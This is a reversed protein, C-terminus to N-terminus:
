KGESSSPPAQRVKILLDPNWSESTKRGDFLVKPYGNYGHAEITGLKGKLRPFTRAAAVSLKVRAGFPLRAKIAAVAAPDNQPVYPM